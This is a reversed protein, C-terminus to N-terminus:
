RRQRCLIGEEELLKQVEVAIQYINKGSTSVDADAAARYAPMRDQLRARASEMDSFLPRTSKDSIRSAAEDADVELHVVYGADSLIELNKQTVVVGGGCSILMPNTGDSLKLLVDTEIRRFGEEGSEAFIEKVKKGEQREIYSDMDVSSLGCLRALRRAVSSKGAGM